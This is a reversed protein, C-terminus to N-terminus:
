LCLIVGLALAAAACAILVLRDQWDMPEALAVNVRLAECQHQVALVDSAPWRGVQLMRLYAEESRLRWAWYFRMM